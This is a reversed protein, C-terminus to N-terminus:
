ESVTFPREVVTTGYNTVKTEEFATADVSVKYGGSNVTLSMDMDMRVGSLVGGCVYYKAFIDIDGGEGLYSAIKSLTEEIYQESNEGSLEFGYDTKTFYTYDLYDQAFPYLEELSSVGIGYWSGNGWSEDEGDKIYLKWEQTTADKEGYAYLVDNVEENEGLASTTMTYSQELYFANETFKATQQAKIQVTVTMGGTEGDVEEEMVSVFTCNKYSDENFVSEYYSKTITEGTVPCPTYYKFHDAYSIIYVRVTKNSDYSDAAMPMYGGESYTVEYEEIKVIGEADEASLTATIETQKATTVEGKSTAVVNEADGSLGVVETAVYATAAAEATTYDISVAGKYTDGVGGLEKIFADHKKSESKGGGGCGAMFATGVSAVCLVGALWKKMNAM